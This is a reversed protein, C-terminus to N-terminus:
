RFFCHTQQSKIEADLWLEQGAASIDYVKIVEEWIAYEPLWDAFENRYAALLAPHFMIKERGPFLAVYFIRTEVLDQFFHTGFSLEPMLGDEERAVEVLVSAHCIEAFSVPVGLSPTSSGWRGPGMLMYPHEERADFLRNLRGVLRAVRYKDHISLAIYAEPQVFIIRDIKKQVSGGMTNRWTSFLLRNQDIAFSYQRSDQSKNTQLPRCQLLNIHMRGDVDFNVTFETDVPYAYAEELTQLMSRLIVPFEGKLLGNFDLTWLDPITRGWDRLKKMTRYDPSAAKKWWNLENLLPFLEALNESCWENKRLDLLDVRHQSFRSMEEPDSHPRLTPKDLAALCPYDDDVRDVARTGLGLVLRVMGARSDMGEHWPYPNCSMAVGALDPFFFRDHLSGSVRQVLLAMQEDSDAMGRQLRYALADENMTSAYISKVAKEFQQYRHQPDGQNICFISEYKGAFANGFGDELLSSSRVIIPSQGFYDLMQQFQEIIVEPMFGSIIKERLPGALAFYNEPTKQQQRLEWCQNEVLYTYYVDSGIYFSDHPELFDSWKIKDESELIKRALLMGVAKGGIYGSGVLRNRIELLDELVFYQRALQLLYEDRGLVMRCLRDVMTASRQEYEASQRDNEEMLERAALFIRDWYDIKREVNGPGQLQFRSFYQATATSSTIPVFREGQQIHPLFMTPSYRNWVKLPHIYTHDGSRFLDLLLQTTERVRAITAYANRNKILAFYAITNLKFLYPCTVRFFNGIM